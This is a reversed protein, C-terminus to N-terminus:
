EDDRDDDDDEDEDSDDDDEDDEPEPEPGESETASFGAGTIPARQEEVEGTLLLTVQGALEKTNSLSGIHRVGGTSRALQDLFTEGPGGKPGIYVVDIRGQFATGEELTRPGDNPFGDSIIVLRTAGYERGLAIAEAMPTGGHPEPVADVFGVQHGFSIMPEGSRAEAVVEKLADICRKRPGDFRHDPDDSIVPSSMSDSTDICLFVRESAAALSGLSKFTMSQELTQRVLSNNDNSM